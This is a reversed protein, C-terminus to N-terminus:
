SSLCTFHDPDVEATHADFQSLAIVRALVEGVPARTNLAERPPRPCARESESDRIHRQHGCGIKPPEDSRNACKEGGPAREDESGGVRTEPRRGPSHCRLNTRSCGPTQRRLAM